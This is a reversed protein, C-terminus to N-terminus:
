GGSSPGPARIVLELGEEEARAEAVASPGACEGATRWELGVASATGPTTVTFGSAKLVEDEIGVLGEIAAPVRVTIEPRDDRVGLTAELDTVGAEAARAIIATVMTLVAVPFAEPVGRWSTRKSDRAAAASALYGPDPPGMVRALFSLGAAEARVRALIMAAELDPYSLSALASDLTLRSKVRRLYETATRLQGLQLRGGLVQLDNLFTHRFGRAVLIVDLATPSLGAKTPPAFWKM